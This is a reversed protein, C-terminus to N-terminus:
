NKHKLKGLKDYNRITKTSVGLIEAVEGVKYGTKTFESVKYM